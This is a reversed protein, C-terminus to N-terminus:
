GRNTEKGNLIELGHNVAKFEDDDIKKVESALKPIDLMSFWGCESHDSENLQINEDPSKLTAFYIVEIAQSRKVENVYVFAAFPDGMNVEVGLEEKIERKLGAKINEGYEIHGGPLEYQDPLFKKNAARKAMFVHPRGNVTKHLLVCATIVQEGPRPTESDNM